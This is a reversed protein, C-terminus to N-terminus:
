FISDLLSRLSFSFTLSSLVLFGLRVYILRRNKKVWVSLHDLVKDVVFRYYDHAQRTDLSLAVKSTLSKTKVEKFTKIIESKVHSEFNELSDLFKNIFFVTNYIMYSMFSFSFLLAGGALIISENFLLFTILIVNIISLGMYEITRKWIIKLFYNIESELRANLVKIIEDDILQGLYKQAQEAALKFGISLAPSLFGAM